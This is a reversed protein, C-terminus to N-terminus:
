CPVWIATTMELVTEGHQNTTEMRYKVIGHTPKSQSRRKETITITATLTDGPYVPRPWKVSDLGLGVLGGAVRSIGSGAKLRMTVAATQWGSTVLKGFPSNLAAKEDVHFYQPDYEKAFQISSEKSITYGETTFEQGIEFDDFYLEAAMM